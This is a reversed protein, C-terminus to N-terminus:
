RRQQKHKQKKRAKKRQRPTNGQDLAADERAVSRLLEFDSLKPKDDTEEKRKATLMERLIALDEKKHKGRSQECSRIEELLMEETMEALTEKRPLVYRFQNTTPAELSRVTKGVVRQQLYVAFDEYKRVGSNYIGCAKRKVLLEIIKDAVYKPMGIFQQFYKGRINPSDAILELVDKLEFQHLKGIARIEDILGEFGDQQSVILNLPNIPIEITKGPVLNAKYSGLTIQKTKGDIRLIPFIISSSSQM